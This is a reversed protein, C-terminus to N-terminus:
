VRKSKDWADLLDSKNKNEQASELDGQAEEMVKRKVESKRQFFKWLGIICSLGLCAATIIKSMAM